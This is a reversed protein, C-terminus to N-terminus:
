RGIRTSFCPTGHVWKQHLGRLEEPFRGIGDIVTFNIVHVGFLILHACFHLLLQNVVTVVKLIAGDISSVAQVAM